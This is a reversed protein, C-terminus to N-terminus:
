ASLRSRAPTAPDNRSYAFPHYFAELAGPGDVELEFSAGHRQDEVAVFVRNTQPNWLLRVDFGDSIRRDLERLATQSTAFM